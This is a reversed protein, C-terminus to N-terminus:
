HAREAAGRDAREREAEDVGVGVDIEDEAVRVERVVGDEHRERQQDGDERDAGEAQEPPRRSGSPRASSGRTTWSKSSETIKVFVIHSPMTAALRIKREAYPPMTESPWTPM